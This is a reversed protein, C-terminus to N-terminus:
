CGVESGVVIAHFVEYKNVIIPASHQDIYRQHDRNNLNSCKVRDQGPFPLDARGFRFCQM